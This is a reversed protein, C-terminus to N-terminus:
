AFPDHYVEDDEEWSVGHAKLEDLWDQWSKLFERAKTGKGESLFGLDELWEIYQTAKNYGIAMKRRLFDAGTRNYRYMAQVAEHFKRDGQWASSQGQGGNGGGDMAAAGIKFINEDYVATGQEKVHEIIAEIEHDKVWVGQGRTLTSLGPPLFLMDGKGLLNEAGSADLVVRSNNRDAVRFCIRCPLNSKILGTVV